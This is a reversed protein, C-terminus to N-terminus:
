AESTTAQPLPNTGMFHDTARFQVSQSLSVQPHPTHMTAGKFKCKGNKAYKCKDLYMCKHGYICTDGWPCKNNKTMATCPLSKAKKRLADLQAPTFDYLHDFQCPSHKCGTPSLYYLVCPPPKQSWLPLTPDISRTGPTTSTPSSRETVPESMDSRARSAGRQRPTPPPPAIFAPAVGGSPLESTFSGPTQLADLNGAMFLGPILLVPLDLDRIGSAIENYSQLLMLKQKYGSTIQSRLATVYGNDHCGGFIIRETQPLRLEADLFGKIKADAGEKAYGVDAIIFRESAQNFGTMFEGLRNKAEYKSIRGFTQALGQKNLFAYVSIELHPRGPFQQKISESLMSAARHGGAQGEAILDINFIAGDGDILVAIRCPKLQNLLDDRIRELEEKERKLAANELEISTFARKSISLEREVDHLTAQSKRENEVIERIEDGMGRYLSVLREHAPTPATDNSISDLLPM